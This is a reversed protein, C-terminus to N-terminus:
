IRNDKLWGLIGYAHKCLHPFSLLLLRLEPRDVACAVPHVANNRQIRIATLLTNLSNISNEHIAYPMPGDKRALNGLVGMIKEHLDFLKRHEMLNRIKDADKQDVYSKIIAVAFLYIIKEAAAGLMVTSAFIHGGELTRLSEGIYQLITEDIDPINGMFDLFGWIDEPFPEKDSNAWSLGYDTISYSNWAVAHDFLQPPSPSPIIIGRVILQIYCENLSSILGPRKRALQSIYGHYDGQPPPDLLSAVALHELINAAMRSYQWESDRIAGPYSSTDYLYGKMLKFIIGKSIEKTM